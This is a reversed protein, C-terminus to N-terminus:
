CCCHILTVIVIVVVVAVVIVIVDAAAAAAAAAATVIVIARARMPATCLRASYRVARCRMADDHAYKLNFHGFHRTSRTHRDNTYHSQFM